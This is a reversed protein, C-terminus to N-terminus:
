CDRYPKVERLMEFDPYGCVHQDLYNWNYEEVKTHCFDTHMTECKDLSSSWLQYSYSVPAPAPHNRHLSPPLFIPLLSPFSSPPFSFPTPPPRTPLPSRPLTPSPSSPLPFIPIFPPHPSPLFLSSYPPLHPTPLLPLSLSHSLSSPNPLSILSIPPPIPLDTVLVAVLTGEV